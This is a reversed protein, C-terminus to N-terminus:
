PHLAKYFIIETPEGPLLLAGADRYGMARYFHQADENAMASTLVADYGQSQMLSEWHTVLARGFGQGRSDELVYLMNMFPTNDWFLNWRLWGVPCADACAMLVRQHRILSRLEDEAIHHDRAKLWSLDEMAALRIQMM